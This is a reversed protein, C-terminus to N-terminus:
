TEDPLRAIAAAALKVQDAAESYRELEKLTKHGSVAAMQKTTAENEALRRMAAKRLGHAKCHAPLGAKRVARRILKTLTQASMPRGDELGVIYIGNSPGAKVARALAPHVPISLEKGTKQQTIALVDSRKLKVADSVRQGSYLLVAFALRERTGLLWRARYADLEADTWTHRSGLRYRTTRKFPNDRRMGMDIGFEMLAILVSRTLNAMGPTAAGIEEIIKRAKASPLDRVLRHGDQAAHRELVLRYLKQSSPKLNAFEASAYYRTVLDGLTGSAMRSKPLPLAALADRYAAMFEPSGPLGPLAMRPMGKRRVYRRLRGKRDRYEHVYQLRIKMPRGM